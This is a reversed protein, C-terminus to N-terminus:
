KKRRSTKVTSTTSETKDIETEVENEKVNEEKIETEVKLTNDKEKSKSERVEDNFIENLQSVIDEDCKDKISLDLKSLEKKAEQKTIKKLGYQVLIDFISKCNEDHFLAYWSPKFRDEECTPCYSYAVKCCKCIRNKAM